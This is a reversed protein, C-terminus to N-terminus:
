YIIRNIWKTTRNFAMEETLYQIYIEEKMEWLDYLAKAMKFKETM